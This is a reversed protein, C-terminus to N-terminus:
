NEAMIAEMLTQSHWYSIACALAMSPKDLRKELYVMLGGTVKVVGSSLVM